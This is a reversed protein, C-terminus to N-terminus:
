FYSLNYVITMSIVIVNIISNSSRLDYYCMAEVFKKSKLILNFNLPKKLIDKSIICLIKYNHLNEKYDSEKIILEIFYYSFSLNM